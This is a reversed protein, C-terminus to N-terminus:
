IADLIAQQALLQERTSLPNNRVSEATALVQWLPTDAGPKNDTNVLQNWTLSGNALNLWTTALPRILLENADSTQKTNLADAVAGVSNLTRYEGSGAPGFVSSLHNIVQRYCDLTVAPFVPKRSDGFANYWWGSNRVTRETGTAVVWTSDTASGADDDNVVLGVQYLCPQNWTHTVASAVGVRPEVTPSPDPDTLPPHLLSTTTATGSDLQGSTRSDFDWVFRLDDSGPDAASAALSLPTGVRVMFTATGSPPPPAMTNSENIATTPNVNRVVLGASDSGSLTDDDVVTAGVTFTGDDGYQLTASFDYTGAPLLLV